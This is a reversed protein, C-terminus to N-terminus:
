GNEENKGLRKLKSAFLEFVWGAVPVVFVLLGITCMSWYLKENGAAIFVAPVAVICLVLNICVFLLYVWLGRKWYSIYRSLKM